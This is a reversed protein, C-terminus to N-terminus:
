ADFAIARAHLRDRARRRVARPFGPSIPIPARLSVTSRVNETSTRLDDLTARGLHDFDRRGLGTLVTVGLAVEGREVNEGVLLHLFEHRRRVVEFHRNDRARFVRQQVDIFVIM